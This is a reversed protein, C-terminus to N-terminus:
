VKICVRRNGAHLGLGCHGAPSWVVHYPQMSKTMTLWASSLRSLKAMGGHGSVLLV